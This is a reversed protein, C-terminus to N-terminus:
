AFLECKICHLAFSFIGVFEPASIEFNEEGGIMADANADAENDSGMDVQM